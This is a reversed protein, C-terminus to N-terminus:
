LESQEVESFVYTQLLDLVRGVQAWERAFLDLKLALLIQRGALITSTDKIGQLREV